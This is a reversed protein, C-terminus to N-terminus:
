LDAFEAISGGFFGERVAEDAPLRQEFFPVGSVRGEVHPYDSSFILMEPDPISTLADSVSLREAGSEVFGPVVSVRVHRRIYESPKLPLKYFNEQATGDMAIMTTKADIDFLFQPLWSHGCEALMVRLRPHREFVGDFVMSMLFHRTRPAESLGGLHVYTEFGRGSSIFSRHVPDGFPLHVYALMGLDEAASWVPEYDPHSYSRLDNQTLHFVRSGAERMRTMEALIARVDHPFIETVPILRDTYGQVQGAAWTNYASILRPLKEPHGSDIVQLFGQVISMTPNLVQVDIGEEDLLKVRAAADYYPNGSDREYHDPQMAEAKMLHVRFEQAVLEVPNDPILEPPFSQQAVGGAAKVFAGGFTSPPPLEAALQPDAHNLWDVPEHFHADSDIVRM